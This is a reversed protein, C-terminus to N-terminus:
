QAININQLDQYYITNEEALLDEKTVAGKTAEVIKYILKASPKRKKRMTSSITERTIGSLLSMEKISINNDYMYKTLQM